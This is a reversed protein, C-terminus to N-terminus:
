TKPGFFGSGWVVVIWIAFLFGFAVPLIMAGQM